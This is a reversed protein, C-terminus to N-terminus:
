NNMPYSSGKVHEELSRFMAILADILAREHSIANVEEQRSQLLRNIANVDMYKEKECFFEPFFLLTMVECLMICDFSFM